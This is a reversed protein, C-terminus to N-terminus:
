SDILPFVFVLKGFQCGHFLSSSTVKNLWVKCDTLKSSCLQIKQGVLVKYTKPKPTRRPPPPPPPPPPGSGPVQNQGGGNGVPKGGGMYAMADKFHEQGQM